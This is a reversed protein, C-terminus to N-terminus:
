GIPGITVGAVGSLRREWCRLVADREEVSLKALAMQIDARTHERGGYIASVLFANEIGSGSGLETCLSRGGYEFDGHQLLLFLGLMSTEDKPICLGKLADIVWLAYEREVGPPYREEVRKRVSRSDIVFDM